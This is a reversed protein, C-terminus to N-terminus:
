AKASGSVGSVSGGGRVSTQQWAGAAAAGGGQHDPYPALLMASPVPSPIKLVASFVQASRCYAFSRHAHTLTTLAPCYSPVLLAWTDAPLRAPM